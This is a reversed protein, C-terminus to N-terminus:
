LPSMESAQPKGPSRSLSIIIIQITEILLYSAIQVVLVWLRRSRIITKWGLLNSGWINKTVMFRFIPFGIRLYPFGM